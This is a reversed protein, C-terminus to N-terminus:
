TVSNVRNLVIEPNTAEFSLLPKTNLTKSLRHAILERDMFPPLLILPRGTLLPIVIGTHKIMEALKKCFLDKEDEQTEFLICNFTAFDLHYQTIQDKVWDSDEKSVSIISPNGAARGLLGM